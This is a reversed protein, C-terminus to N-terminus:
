EFKEGKLEEIEKVLEKERQIYDLLRKETAEVLGTLRMIELEEKSYTHAELDAGTYELNKKMEFREMKNKWENYNIQVWILREEEELGNEWKMYPILTIGIPIISKFLEKDKEEKYMQYQKLSNLYIIMKYNEQNIQLETDDEVFDDVILVDSNKDEVIPYGELNKELNCEGMNNLQVINVGYYDFKHIEFKKLVQVCIYYCFDYEFTKEYLENFELLKQFRSKILHTGTSTITVLENPVKQFVYPLLESPFVEKIIKVGPFLKEYYMIDDPHPKIVINETNTKLYFDFLFQYIKIHKEFSLQGLNSFQQTLLLVNEESVKIKHDINFFALIKEKDDAKLMEFADVVDFHHFKEDLFGEIQTHKNGWKEDIQEVSHYYLGYKNIIEYKRPASKETIEALVWPRSLAGSGDEFMSFTINKLVLYLALYTHIGAIYIKEANKIDFQLLNKLRSEVTNIISEEKPEIGGFNFLYVEDFFGYEEIKKYNPYKEVIYTGLLIVAKEKEHFIKKHEMCELIQYTSLAQYVIM